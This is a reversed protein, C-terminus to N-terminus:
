EAAQSTNEEILPQVSATRWAEETRREGLPHTRLQAKKREAERQSAKHSRVVRPAGIDSTALACRAAIQNQDEARKEGASM